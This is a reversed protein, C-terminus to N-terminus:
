ARGGVSAHGFVEKRYNRKKFVFFDVDERVSECRFCERERKMRAIGEEFAEDGILILDSYARNSIKKLYAEFNPAAEQNMTGASVHSFGRTTFNHVLGIRNWLLNQSLREAEPFYRLYPLSELNERSYNRIFLVGDDRLVRYIESTAREVDEIHHAVNSMFILAASRTDASISEASGFRYEIQCSSKHATAERIMKRSPDIGIVPVNLYAALPTSFRGTGCGLDIIAVDNMAPLAEKVLAMWRRVDEGSLARCDHYTEPAYTADYHMAACVRAGTDPM